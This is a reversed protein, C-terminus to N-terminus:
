QDREGHEGARYGRPDNEVAPEGARELRAGALIQRRRWPDQGISIGGDTFGHDHM